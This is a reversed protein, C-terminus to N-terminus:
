AAALSPKPSFIRNLTAALRIGGQAIRKEVIPLRSLFYDDGLTTGPAADKYAYKCALDISESAYGRKSIPISVSKPVSNRSTSMVGM